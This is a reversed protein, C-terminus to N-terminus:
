APITMGELMRRLIRDGRQDEMKLEASLLLKHRGCWPATEMIDEPILFDRGEWLALCQAAALVHQLGRTSFGNQIQKSHRTERGIQCLWKSLEENVKVGRVLARIEQAEKSDLLAELGDVPNESQYLSLIKEEWQPDPWELSLSIGFRDLQAEPLAFTGSYNSPNQTAVVFFPQPLPRTEGDTTVQGEQMAELLASQTRAAARNLEDALLFPHFVPGPAFRFEGKQTDWINMGTIDGPILDPTFQIRGMDLGLVKSLCHALTTKGVGPKDEILLHLGAFFAVLSQKVQHDKGIFRSCISSHIEKIKNSADKYEM